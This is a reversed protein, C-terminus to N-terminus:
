EDSKVKALVFSSVKKAGHLLLLNKIEQLTAGTTYIDDVILFHKDNVHFQECLTFRKESNQREHLTKKSQTDNIEKKLVQVHPIHAANLLLEVQSFTREYLRENHLPVPVITETRRHLAAYIDNRFVHALVADGSFKYRKIFERMAENYTFLAEVDDSREAREFKEYCRMCCSSPFKQLLLTKWSLPEFFPEDCLLCNM